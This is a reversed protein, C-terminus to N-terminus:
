IKAFDRETDIASTAVIEYNHGCKANHKLSIKQGNWLPDNCMHTGVLYAM